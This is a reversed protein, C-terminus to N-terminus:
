HMCGCDNQDETELRQKGEDSLPMFRRPLREFASACIHIQKQLSLLRMVACCLLVGDIFYLSM